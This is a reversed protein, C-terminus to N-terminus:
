RDCSVSALCQLLPEELVLEEWELAAPVLVFVRHQGSLRYPRCDVPQRQALRLVPPDALERPVLHEAQAAECALGLLVTLLVLLVLLLLLLM